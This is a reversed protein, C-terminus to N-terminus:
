NRTLSIKGMGLDEYLELDDFEKCKEITFTNNKFNYFNEVFKNSIEVEHIYFKMILEEFYSFITKQVKDLYQMETTTRTENKLIIRGVEDIYKLSAEHSTMITELMYYNQILENDIWENKPTVEETKYMSKIKITNRNRKFSESYNGLYLGELTFPVFKNLFYQCTGASVLDIFAYKKNAELGLEKIYNMYNNRFHESKKFIIDKHGIFYEYKSEYINKDYVNLDDDELYFRRRVMEELSDLFPYLSLEIFDSEENTGAAIAFARSTQFYKGQPLALEPYQKKFLDYLKQVLYADRAGFLVDDYKNDKVNDIIWLSFKSILPAIFLYTFEHIDTISVRGDLEFVFPNNFIKSIFLGLITRENLTEAESNIGFYKSIEFMEYCSRIYMDKSSNADGIKKDNYILTTNNIDILENTSSIFNLNDYNEFLNEIDVEFEINNLIYVEKNNEQAYDLADFIAKRKVIFDTFHKDELGKLAIVERIDAVSFLKINYLVNLLEFCVNESKDIKSYLMEKNVNFYNDIERETASHGVLNEYKKGSISYLLINNENCFKIIRSGIASINSNRAVIIIIDIDLKKADELAYIPKNYMKGTSFKRDLLGVINYEPFTSVIHGTQVGVGYLMIKKEKFKGFNEKFLKTFYELEIM